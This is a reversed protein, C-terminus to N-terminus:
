VQLAELGCPSEDWTNSITMMPVDLNKGYLRHKQIIVKDGVGVLGWIKWNNSFKVVLFDVQGDNIGYMSYVFHEILVLFTRLWYFLVSVNIQQM